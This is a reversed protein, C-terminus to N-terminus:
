PYSVKPKDIQLCFPNQMAMMTPRNTRIRSVRDFDRAIYEAIKDTINIPPLRTSNLPTDPAHDKLYRIYGSRQLDRYKKIDWESDEICLSYGDQAPPAPPPIHIHVPRGNAISESIMSQSEGILVVHDSQDLLGIYPNYQNRVSSLSPAIINFKQSLGNQKILTKLKSVIKKYIDPDTRTSPCFYVTGTNDGLCHTDIITAVNDDARINALLITTIPNKIDTHRALFERGHQTLDDATLHHPVLPNVTDNQPLRKVMNPLITDILFTPDAETKHILQEATYGIVIDPRGDRDMLKKLKRAMSKTNPFAKNLMDQDVYLMQGNLKEAVRKALGAAGRSEGRMPDDGGIYAWVRVIGDANCRYPPTKQLIENLEPTDM